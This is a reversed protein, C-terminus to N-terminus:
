APDLYLPFSHRVTFAGGRNWVEATFLPRSHAEVMQQWDDKSAILGEPMRKLKPFRLDVTSDDM